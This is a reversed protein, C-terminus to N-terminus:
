GVGGQYLGNNGKKKPTIVFAAQNAVLTSVFIKGLGWAGSTSCVVWTELQACSIGFVAGSVVVLSGLMILRKKTADLNDFWGSFGPVLAFLLSLFIGAASGILEATVKPEM